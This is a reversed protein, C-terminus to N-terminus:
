ILKERIIRGEFASIVKKAIRDFSLSIIKDMMFSKFSANVFFTVICDDEIQEFTWESYLDKFPNETSQIIIKCSEKDISVDSVFAEKFIKYEIFISAKFEKKTKDSRLCEIIRVEKCLPVFEGYAEVDSVVNMLTAYNCKSIKKSIKKKM